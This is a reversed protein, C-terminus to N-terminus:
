PIGNPKKVDTPAVKERPKLQPKNQFPDRVQSADDFGILIAQPEKKDQEAALSAEEHNLLKM